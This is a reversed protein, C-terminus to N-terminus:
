KLVNKEENEELYGNVKEHIKEKKSTLGSNLESKLSFLEVMSDYDFEEKSNKSKHWKPYESITENEIIKRKKM